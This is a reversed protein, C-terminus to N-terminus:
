HWPSNIARGISPARMIASSILVVVGAAAARGGRGSFIIVINVARDHQHASTFRRIIISCAADDRPVPSRIMSATKNAARRANLLLIVRSSNDRRNRGDGIGGPRLRTKIIHGRFYAIALAIFNLEAQFIRRVFRRLLFSQRRM